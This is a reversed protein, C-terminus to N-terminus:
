ALLPAQDPCREVLGDFQEFVHGLWGGDGPQAFGAAPTGVPKRAFSTSLWPSLVSVVDSGPDQAALLQAALYARARSRRAPNDAQHWKRADAPVVERALAALLPSLTPSARTTLALEVARDFLNWEQGSA